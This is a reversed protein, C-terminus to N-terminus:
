DEAHNAATCSSRVDCNQCAREGFSRGRGAYGEEICDVVRGLKEIAAPHRTLVVGTGDIKREKLEGHITPCANLQAAHDEPRAARAPGQTKLDHVGTERNSLSHRLPVV